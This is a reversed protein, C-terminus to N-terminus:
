IMHVLTKITRLLKRRQTNTKKLEVKASKCNELEIREELQQILNDYMELKKNALLYRFKPHLTFKKPKSSDEVSPKAKSAGTVGRVITNDYLNIFFGAIIGGPFDHCVTQVLANFLPIAKLKRWVRKTDAPGGTSLKPIQKPNSSYVNCFLEEKVLLDLAEQLEETNLKLKYIVLGNEILVRLTDVSGEVIRWSNQEIMDDVSSM